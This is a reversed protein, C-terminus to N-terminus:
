LKFIFNMVSDFSLQMLSVVLEPKKGSYGGRKKALPLSSWNTGTSSRARFLGHVLATLLRPSRPTGASVVGDTQGASLSLSIVMLPKRHQKGQLLCWGRVLSRKDREWEGVASGLLFRVSQTRFKLLCCLFQKFPLSLSPFPVM